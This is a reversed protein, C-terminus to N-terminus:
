PTGGPRPRGVEGLYNGCANGYTCFIFINIAFVPITWQSGRGPLNRNQAPKRRARAPLHHAQEGQQTLPARPIRTAFRGRLAECVGEICQTPPESQEHARHEHCTCCAGLICCRHALVTMLMKNSWSLPLSRCEFCATNRCPLPTEGGFSLRRQARRAFRGTARTRRESVGVQICSTRPQARLDALSRPRELDIPLYSFRM